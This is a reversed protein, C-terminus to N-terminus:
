PKIKLHHRTVAAKLQAKQRANAARIATAYVKHAFSAYSDRRILPIMAETFAEPTSTAALARPQGIVVVL